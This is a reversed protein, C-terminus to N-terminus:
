NTIQDHVLKWDDLNNLMIGDNIQIEEPLGNERLIELRAAPSKTKSVLLENIKSINEQSVNV